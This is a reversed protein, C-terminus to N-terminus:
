RVCVLLTRHSDFPWSCCALVVCRESSSVLDEWGAAQASGQAVLDRLWTRYASMACEHRIEDVDGDSLVWWFSLDAEETSKTGVLVCQEVAEAPMQDALLCLNWEGRAAHEALDSEMRLSVETEDPSFDFQQVDAFDPWVYLGAVPTFALTGEEPTSYWVTGVDDFHAQEDVEAIQHFGTDAWHTHAYVIANTGNPNCRYDLFVNAYSERGFADHYLYWENDEGQVVPFDIDTGDVAVWARTDAVEASLTEWDVSFEGPADPLGETAGEPGREPGSAEPGAGTDDGRGDDGSDDRKVESALRRYDNLSLLDPVIMAAGLGM